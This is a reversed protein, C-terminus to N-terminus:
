FLGAYVGDAFPFCKGSQWPLVCSCLALITQFVVYSYSYRYEVMCTCFCVINGLSCIPTHGFCLVLFTEWCDSEASCWSWGWCVLMGVDSM